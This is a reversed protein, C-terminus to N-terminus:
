VNADAWQRRHPCCAPGVASRCVVCGDGPASLQVAAEAADLVDDPIEVETGDPLTVVDALRSWSEHVQDPTPSDASYSGDWSKIASSQVAPTDPNVGASSGQDPVENWQGGAFSPTDSIVGEVTQINKQNSQIYRTDPNVGRLTDPSAGTDSSVGKYHPPLAIELKPIGRVNGPVERFMGLEVAKAKRRKATRVSIRALQALKRTSRYVEKGDDSWSAMRIAFTIIEDFDDDHEWDNVLYQIWQWFSPKGASTESSVEGTTKDITPM